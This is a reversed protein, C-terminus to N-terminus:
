TEYHQEPLLNMAAAQFHGCKLPRLIEPHRDIEFGDRDTRLRSRLRLRM